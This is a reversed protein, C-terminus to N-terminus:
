AKARKTAPDMWYPFYMERNMRMLDLTSLEKLPHNPDLSYWGRTQLLEDWDYGKSKLGEYLEMPEVGYRDWMSPKFHKIQLMESLINVARQLKPETDLKKRIVTRSLAVDPLLTLQYNTQNGNFGWDNDRIYHFETLDPLFGTSQSVLVNITFGTPGNKNRICLLEVNFLDNDFKNGKTEHLPYRPGDEIRHGMGCNSTKLTQWCVNSLSVFKPAAGKLVDGTKMSSLQKGPAVPMPGQAMVIEKGVQATVMMFHNASNLLTPLGMLFRQKNLGSKMFGPNAATDGLEHTDQMEEDATTTFETLSDLDGFTPPLMRLPSKGDRDLFVTDIYKMPPPLNEEKGRKIDPDKARLVSKLLEYYKEGKYKNRNTFVITDNDILDVLVGDKLFFPRLDEMHRMYFQFIDRQHSEVVTIETDYMLASTKITSLVRLAAIYLISKAITSKFMHPKGVVGTFPAMGGNMIYQGHVGILFEATPIDLLGGVPCFPVVPESKKVNGFLSM